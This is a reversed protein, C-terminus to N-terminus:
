QSKVTTWANGCFRYIYILSMLANGVYFSGYLLLFKITEHAIPAHLLAYSVPIFYGFCILVRVMMVTKVNGAGRLAGSLILQLLDFFVLVSLIPFVYITLASFAREPDFFLTIYESWLSISILLLFVMLSALFIVKKTNAKISEWRKMSYDNSALFTIIQACAIAPLFAIRELDKLMSFSALTSTGMPAIMKCLWIYAMALTAKDIIIPWSVRILDKVLSRDTLATLLAISYKRYDKNTLVYCFAIICMSAYQIVSAWASGQLGLRPFGWMGFILVYDFFTFIIGGWLFFLMPVRTNKIGRLFGIFAFYVFTFFIGVARLRLFPVGLAIMETPVGYWSYIWHAGCFLISAIAFGLLCTLWFSDRLARGVEKYAHMGNYNGAIVVTGISFAEAIKVLLHLLTNTAGLTAYTPTSKLHAIFHSDLLFPLSYLILSTIFEPFFYRFITAYQEGHADYFVDNWYSVVMNKKM